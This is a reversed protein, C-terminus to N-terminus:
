VWEYNLLKNARQDLIEEPNSRREDATSNDSQSLKPEKIASLLWKVHDCAM